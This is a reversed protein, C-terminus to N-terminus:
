SRWCRRPRAAGPSASWASPRARGSTWTSGPSRTCGAWGASAAARGQLLPYTKSVATLELVAPRQERPVAGPGAARLVPPLPYVPAGDIRGDEIGDARVCAASTGRPRAPALLETGRETCRTSRSRAGRPSRAARRCTSWCRRTARRDAGPPARDASDVAPFPASCGSRTRCGRGRSCSTWRRRDGGAARRVDGARRRRDRGGRRPRPHHPDARRRDRGPRAQAGGPDPGPGHRGARDDARRRHDGEPDNAIAMAIVVRQRM